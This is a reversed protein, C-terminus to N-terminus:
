VDDRFGYLARCAQAARRDAVEGHTEAWAHFRRFVLEAIAESPRVPYGHYDPVSINTVRAEFIWGSDAVAWLMTPAGQSILHGLLGARIGRQMMAPVRPMQDPEFNAHDDCLSEDGRRGRYHRLGFRVPDRKHKSIGHYTAVRLLATVRLTVGPEPHLRRKENDSRRPPIDPRRPPRNM